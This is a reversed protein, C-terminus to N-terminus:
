AQHDGVGDCVILSTGKGTSGSPHDLNSRMYHEGSPPQYLTDVVKQEPSWTLAHNVEDRYRFLSLAM